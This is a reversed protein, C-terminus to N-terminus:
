VEKAPLGTPAGKDGNCPGRKMLLSHEVSPKGVSRDQSQRFGHTIHHRCKLGRLSERSQASVLNRRSAHGGMIEYRSSISASVPRVIAAVDGETITCRSALVHRLCYWRLLRPHRVSFALQGFHHILGSNAAAREVRCPIGKIPIRNVLSCNNM